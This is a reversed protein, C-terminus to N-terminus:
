REILTVKKQELETEYHFSSTEEVGSKRISNYWYIISM